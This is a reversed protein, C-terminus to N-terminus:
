IFDIWCARAAAFFLGCRRALGALQNRSFVIRPAEQLCVVDAAAATIVRAVASSDGLLDRVNWTLVRLVDSPPRPATGPAPLEDTAPM